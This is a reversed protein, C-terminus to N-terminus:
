TGTTMLTQLRKEEEDGARQPPRLTASGTGVPTASAPLGRVRAAYAAPTQYDLSSHPRRHNYALRYDETVM